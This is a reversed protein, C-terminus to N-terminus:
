RIPYLHRVLALPIPQATAGDVEILAPTGTIGLMEGLAHDSRVSQASRADERLSHQTLGAPLGEEALIDEASLGPKAYLRSEYRWFDGREDALEAGVALKFSGNHSRLPYQRLILRPGDPKLSARYLVRYAEACYPCEGDAFMIITRNPKTPGTSHAGELLKAVSVRALASPDLTVTSPQSSSRAAVSLGIVAAAVVALVGLHPRPPGPDLDFARVGAESALLAFTLGCGVLYYASLYHLRGYALELHTIQVGLILIYVCYVSASRLREPLHCISFAYRLVTALVFGCLILLSAPVGMTRLAPDQGMLASRLYPDPLIPVRYQM